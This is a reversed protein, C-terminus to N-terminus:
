RATLKSPRNGLVGDLAVVLDQVDESKVLIRNTDSATQQHVTVDCESVRSTVPLTQQTYILLDGSVRQEIVISGVEVKALNKPKPPAGVSVGANPGPRNRVPFLQVLAM